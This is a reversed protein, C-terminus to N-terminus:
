IILIALTVTSSQTFTISLRKSSIKIAASLDLINDFPPSGKSSLSLSLFGTTANRSIASLLNNCGVKIVSNGESDKSYVPAKFNIKRTKKSKKKSKKRSKPKRIKKSSRKVKKSRGRIKRSKKTRSRSKKVKRSKAFKKKKRKKKKAM